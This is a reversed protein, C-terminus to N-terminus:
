SASAATVAPATGAHPTASPGAVVYALVGLLGCNLVGLVAIAVFWRKRELQATNLLAGLWAIVGTIAAGIMLLAGVLGLGLLGAAAATERVSVIASGNRVFVDDPNAFWGVNVLIGGVIGAILSAVFLWTIRSKSM